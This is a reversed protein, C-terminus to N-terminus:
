KKVAGVKKVTEFFDDLFFFFSDFYVVLHRKVCTKVTEIQCNEGSLM